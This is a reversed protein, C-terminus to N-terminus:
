GTFPETAASGVTLGSTAVRKDSYLLKRYQMQSAITAAAVQDETTAAPWNIADINFMGATYVAARQDAGKDPIAYATMAVIEEGAAWVKYAGTAFSLPTYQPILGLAAPILVDRTVMPPTDGAILQPVTTDEVGAAGAIHITNSM